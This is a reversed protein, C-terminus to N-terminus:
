LYYSGVSLVIVVIAFSDTVFIKMKQGSTTIHIQLIVLVIYFGEQCTPLAKKINRGGTNNVHTYTVLVILRIKGLCKCNNSKRM